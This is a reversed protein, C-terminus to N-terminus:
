KNIELNFVYIDGFCNIAALWQGDPSTLMRTVPPESLRCDAATDDDRRPVFVHVLELKETHIM